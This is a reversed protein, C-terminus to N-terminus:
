GSVGHYRQCDICNIVFHMPRNEKYCTLVLEGPHSSSDRVLFDGEKMLLSEAELRSILGHYWVVGELDRTSPLGLSPVIGVPSTLAKNSHFMLKFISRPITAEQKMRELRLASGSGSEPFQKM